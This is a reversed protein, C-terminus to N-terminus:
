WCCRWAARWGGYLHAHGSGMDAPDTGVRGYQAVGTEGLSHNVSCRYGCAAALGTNPLSDIAAPFVDM